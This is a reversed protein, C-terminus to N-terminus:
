LGAPFEQSELGNPAQLTPARDLKYNMGLKAVYWASLLYM